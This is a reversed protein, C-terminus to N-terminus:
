SAIVWSVSVPKAFGDITLTATGSPPTAATFRLEGARHHGGPGDGSWQAIPWRTGGVTLRAKSRLDQDLSVSHTDFSITFAAGTTDIRRPQVKISVSGVEVTRAPFASATKGTDTTSCGLGPLGLFLVAAVILVPSRRFRRRVSDRTM